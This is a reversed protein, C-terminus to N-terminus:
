ECVKSYYKPLYNKSSNIKM